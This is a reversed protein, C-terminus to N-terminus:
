DNQTEEQAKAQLRRDIAAFHGLMATLEADSIGALLDEEVRALEARIEAVRDRGAGTLHIRRARADAPDVRREVLGSRSLIDLLRVLSSSDIGVLAALDKQTIGDGNEQLHVLPLWTADSLGAAALQADLARRWRRALLSFRIGFRARPSSSDTM